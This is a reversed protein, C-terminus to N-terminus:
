VGPIFLSYVLILPRNIWFHFIECNQYPYFIESKRWFKKRNVFIWKNWDKKVFNWFRKREVFNSFNFLFLLNWILMNYMAFGCSLGCQFCATQPKFKFSFLWMQYCSGLQSLWSGVELLCSPNKFGFNCYNGNSCTM